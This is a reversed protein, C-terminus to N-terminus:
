AAIELFAPRLDVVQGAQSDPHQRGTMAEWRERAQRQDRERFTEAGPPKKSHREAYWGANFGQWGVSCCYALAAELPLGAQDAQAQIGALATVTLPARKTKRLAQFDQWVPESVDPPRAAPPTRKRASEGQIEVPVPVPVPVPPMATADPNLATADTQSATANGPTPNPMDGANGPTSVPKHWRKNARDRQKDQRERLNCLEADVRRNFWGDDTLTFFEELVVRVAERQGDTSALVLRCCARLDAPLPKETTYYVDLLRRYAADEEWSLHRTASLYDGIHFPYFNVAAEM